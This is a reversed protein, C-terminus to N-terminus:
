FRPLVKDLKSTFNEKMQEIKTTLSLVLNEKGEKFELVQNNLTEM